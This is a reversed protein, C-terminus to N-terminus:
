RYKAIYRLLDSTTKLRPTDISKQLYRFIHLQEPTLNTGNMVDSCRFLKTNLGDISTGKLEFTGEGSFVGSSDGSLVLGIERPIIDELQLFFM